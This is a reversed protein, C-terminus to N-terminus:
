KFLGTQRPPPSEFIGNHTINAWNCFARWIDSLEGDVSFAVAGAIKDGNDDDWEHLHPDGADSCSPNHHESEMCLRVFPREGPRFMNLSFKKNERNYYGTIAINGGEFEMEVRFSVAYTIDPHQRWVVDGDVQKARDALIASAEVRTM